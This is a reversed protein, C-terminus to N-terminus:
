VSKLFDTLRVMLDPAQLECEWIVLVDWGALNLKAVNQIDRLRNASLKATWFEVRSKPVRAMPCGDHRHWFCGHIFIVKKRGPFALDPKGPLDARHLRYRFGAKYLLQRVLLEPRTNKSRVRSMIESRREPTVTDAM